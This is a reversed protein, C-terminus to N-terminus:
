YYKFFFYKFFTYRSITKLNLDSILLFISVSIGRIVAQQGALAPDDYSDRIRVEIDTTHWDSSGIISSGVAGDL